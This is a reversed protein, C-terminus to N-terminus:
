SNRKIFSRGFIVAFSALIGTVISLIIFIALRPESPAKISQPVPPEIVVFMPKQEQVKIKTNELQMLLSNYISSASQYEMTLRDLGISGASVIVNRNNDKASALAEQASYLKRKAKLLQTQLYTVSNDKKGGQYEKLFRTLQEEAIKAVQASVYPDQMKVEIHIPKGPDTTYTLRARLTNLLLKDTSNLDLIKVSADSEDDAQTDLVNAVTDKSPVVKNTSKKFLSKFKQSTTLAMRQRMYERLKVSDGEFFVNRDLVQLLYPTSTFIDGYNNANIGPQDPTTIGAISALGSLSSKMDSVGDVALDVSSIYEKPTLLYLFIGLFLAAGTCTAFIKWDRAVNLYVEKATFKEM